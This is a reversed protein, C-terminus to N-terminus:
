RTTVFCNSLGKAKLKSCVSSATDKSAMPGVRLRYYVGKNGLDAKQILPRYGSLVDGYKSQLGSFAALADQQSRRASIQVVYSGDTAPPAARDNSAVKREQARVANGERLTKVARAAQGTDVTVGVMDKVQAENQISVRNDQVRDGNRDIRYTRVLRPGSGDDNTDKAEAGALKNGDSNSRLSEVVEPEGRSAIVAKAAGPDGLRAFIKKNKNAFERGGPDEPAVKGDGADSLIVPARDNSSDGSYKYAFAVGGGIIVSGLIMTGVLFSKRGSSQYDSRLSADAQAVQLPAPAYPDNLQQMGQPQPQMPQGNFQGNYDTYSQDYGYADAALAGANHQHHAAAEYAQADYGQGEYAHGEYGQNYLAPSKGTDVQAQHYYQEAYGEPYEGAQESPHGFSHATADFPKTANQHAALYPNVEEEEEYQEAGYAEGHQQAYQRHYDAQSYGQAADAQQDYGYGAAQAETLQGYGPQYAQNREAHQQAYYQNYAEPLQEHQGAHHPQQQPLAAHGKHAEGYPNAHGQGNHGHGNQGYAHNHQWQHLPQGTTPDVGYNTQTADGERHSNYAEGRYATHKDSM